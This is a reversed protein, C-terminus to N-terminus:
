RDFRWGVHGLICPGQRISTNLIELDLDVALDVLVYLSNCGNSGLEPRFRVQGDVGVLRVRGLIRDASKVQHRRIADIQRLLRDLNGIERSQFSDRLGNGDGDFRVFRSVRLRGM